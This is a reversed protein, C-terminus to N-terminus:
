PVRGLVSIVDGKNPWSLRYLQYLGGAIWRQLRGIEGIGADAPLWEAVTRFIPSYWPFGWHCVRTVRFGADTMKGELEGSRYNRVHGIRAESPRMRGTVSTVIAAKATVQRLNELFRRDKVVHEVVQACVTLDWCGDPEGQTFDWSFFDAAVREAARALASASLDSGALRASPWRRHIEELLHGAGCGADLVSGFSIEGALELIQRRHHRHVPGLTQLDSWERQWLRDYEAADKQNGDATPHRADVKEM